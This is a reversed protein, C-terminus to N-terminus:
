WFNEAPGVSWWDFMMVIGLPRSSWSGAGSTVLSLTPSWDRQPLWTPLHAFSRLRAFWPSLLLRNPAVTASDSTASVTSGASDCARTPRLPAPLDVSTDTRVPSARGSAPVTRNWPSGAGGSVSRAAQRERTAQTYWFDVIM